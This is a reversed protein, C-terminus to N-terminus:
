SAPPTTPSDDHNMTETVELGRAALKERYEEIKERPVNFAVHNMSGLATTRSGQGEEWQRFGSASDSRPSESPM